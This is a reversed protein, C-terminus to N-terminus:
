ICRSFNNLSHIMTNDVSIWNPLATQVYGAVSAAIVVGKMPGLRQRGIAYTGTKCWWTKWCHGQDVPPYSCQQIILNTFCPVGWNATSYRHIHCETVCENHINTWDTTWQMCTKDVGRHDAWAKAVKHPDMTDGLLDRTVEMLSYNWNHVLSPCFETEITFNWLWQSTALQLSDSM